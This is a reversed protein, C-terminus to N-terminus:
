GLKPWETPHTPQSTPQKTSQVVGGDSMGDCGVGERGKERKSGESSTDISKKKCEKKEGEGM